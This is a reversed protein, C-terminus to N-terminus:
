QASATGAPTSVGYLASVVQRAVMRYAENVDSPWQDQHSAIYNLHSSLDTYIQQGTRDVPLDVYWGTLQHVMSVNIAAVGNGAPMGIIAVARGSTLEKTNCQQQESNAGANIAQGSTADIPWNAAATATDNVEGQVIPFQDNFVLNKDNIDFDQNYKSRWENQIRSITANLQQQDVGKFEQARAKDRNALESLFSSFFSDYSDKTVARQTLGVLTSKVGSAADEDKAIFGSPLQPMAANQDAAPPNAPNNVQPSAGPGQPQQATPTNSPPNTPYAGINGAGAVPVFALLSLGAAAVFL